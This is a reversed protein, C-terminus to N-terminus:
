RGAVTTEVERGSGSLGPGLARRRRRLQWPLVAAELQVRLTMKSRGRTRDSFHIPMEEVVLGEQRCRHAMEIQFAYGQAHLSSLDIARLAGARWAKFGSTVDRVDLRLVQDVYVNAARSLARRRRPWEVATGGGPVYRSGVVVDTSGDALAELMLPVTQTPHSLDADMQIVVSAGQELALSMGAVYARGLGDKASRHLVQVRGGSCSALRDAVAGTGDPSGDDVVLVHLGPAAPLSLLRDIVIPLNDRENYTPLVVFVLDQTPTTM